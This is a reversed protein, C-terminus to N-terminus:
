CHEAKGSRPGAFNMARRRADDRFLAAVSHEIEPDNRFHFWAVNRPESVTDDALVSRPASIEPPM